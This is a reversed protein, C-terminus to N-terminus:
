QVPVLELIGPVLPLAELAEKLGREDFCGAQHRNNTYNPVLMDPALQMMAPSGIYIKQGKIKIQTM